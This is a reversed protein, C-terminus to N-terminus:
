QGLVALTEAWCCCCVLVVAARCLEALAEAWRRTVAVSPRLADMMDAWCCGCVIRHFHLHREAAFLYQLSSLGDFTSAPLATLANFSMDRRHRHDVDKCHDDFLYSLASLGAFIGTPM